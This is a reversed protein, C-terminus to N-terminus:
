GLPLFRQALVDWFGQDTVRVEPIVSLALFSLIGFPCPVTVGLTAATAEVEALGATVAEHPQSSLLGAFPLPLRAQVQGEAVTVFGGGTEALARAAALMDRPNTGALIVNHSDHAVSSGMAGHRRFGFGTALGLGVHGSAKHREISALLVADRAPDFQWFGEKRAVTMTQKLTVLSGPQIRLVPVTDSGLRLRFATEALQPLHITNASPLAHAPGPGVYQGDRAAVRGDKLVLAPRFDAVDGELAVLDARYGPAVAGRDFLRYHRAPILTAHRIAHVPDVGAAVVRRLHHDIHGLRHLDTPLIDDTVLTWDDGLEGKFLLPLLTDMNRAISGERVQVLMGLSAKQLAEEVTGSEHDTRIGAAIYAMLDRGVMGPAHGDVPLGALQAAHVKALVYPDSGLVAPFDMVEALALVRPHALLKAVEAPGLVAGAHEWLAAPVCSSAALFLDFALGEAAKALHEIGPIGLVNGVEHSDSITATTGHPVIMRALEGPSLLTSELHMHSDILGPLVFRGRLPITERATWAYPGVGAIFGDAIAVHGPEMVGTFVNAIRGDSLLLDAPELGRAVRVRRQLQELSPITPRHM